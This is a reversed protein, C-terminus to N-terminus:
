RTKILKGTYYADSATVSYLYIGPELERGDFGFNHEGPAVIEFEQHVLVGLMNYVNLEIRQESPSYYALRTFDSFPNPVNPNVKFETMQKPDTGLVEVVTIVISSDDVVQYEIGGLIDVMATIYITFTDVGVETPTGTLQICYATDPYLINANPFYDIGPPMNKVSDIRIHLITLQTQGFVYAGPPIVTVTEDYLVNLGAHPLKLPCFQGPDGIDECNVTDPECQGSLQLEPFTVVALILLLRILKELRSSQRM